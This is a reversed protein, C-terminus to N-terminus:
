HECVRLASEYENRRLFPWADRDGHSWYDADQKRVAAGLTLLNAVSILCGWGFGQSFTDPEPPWLYENDTQLFLIIRNFLAEEDRTLPAETVLNVDDICFGCLQDMIADFCPDHQSKMGRLHEVRDYFVGTDIRGDRLEEIQNRLFRRREKDVM